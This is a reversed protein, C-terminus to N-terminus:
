GAGTIKLARMMAIADSLLPDGYGIGRRRALEPM